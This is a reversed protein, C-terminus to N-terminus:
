IYTYYKLRIKKIFSIDPFVIDIGPYREDAFTMGLDIIIWKGKSGYLNLNMGIQNSGGLPIFTIKNDFFFSM